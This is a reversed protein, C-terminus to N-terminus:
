VLMDPGSKLRANEGGQRTGRLRFRGTGLL